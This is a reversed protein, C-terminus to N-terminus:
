PNSDNSESMLQGEATVGKSLSSMNQGVARMEEGGGDDLEDEEEKNTDMADDDEDLEDGEEERKTFALLIRAMEM